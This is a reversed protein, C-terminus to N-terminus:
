AEAIEGKIKKELHEAFLKSIGAIVRLIEKRKEQNFGKIASELGAHAYSRILIKLLKVSKEKKSADESLINEMLTVIYGSYELAEVCDKNTLDDNGQLLQEIYPLSVEINNEVAKKVGERVLWNEDKILGIVEPICESKLIKHLARVAHMRVFWANDRLRSVLANKAQSSGMEGLCECSAARVDDSKDNTLEMIKNIYEHPKFKSLIKVAWFRVRPNHNEATKVVEEVILAPFTELLSAIEQGSSIHKCLFDLLIKAAPFSKIYGLSLMSFYSVDEDKDLITKRLVDESAPYKSYGLIVIAQIRRWKNRSNQAIKEIEAIKGESVFCARFQQQLENPLVLEKNRLIEIIQLPNIDGILLDCKEQMSGTGSIAASELRKKLLAVNRSRIKMLIEKVASYLIILLALLLSATLLIKNAQWVLDTHYNYM